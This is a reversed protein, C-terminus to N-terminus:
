FIITFYCNIYSWWDSFLCNFCCCHAVWRFFYVFYWIAFYFLISFKLKDLMFALLLIWCLTQLLNLLFTLNYLLFIAADNLCDGVFLEL